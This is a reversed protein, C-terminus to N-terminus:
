RGPSPTGDCWNAPNNGSASSESSIRVLSKGLGDAQVPWPSFTGYYVEDVQVWSVQQGIADPAQPRELALREGGNSLAGIYPGFVNVAPTLSDAGYATKFAELRIIDTPDFPVVILRQGAALSIGAPFVYSVANSLRWSGDANALLISASTPNYLEIYEDNSSGELPHYMIESIVVDQIPVANAANRSPPMVFWDDGGDPYRGLSVGNEQGRFRICDVIRDQSTGPLYSLFVQEGAKDLGFGQTIPNHFGSVEDYGIHGGAALTSAPLPWKKLQNIDDSLYWYGNLEVSYNSTNFLEIYDNSDYEPHAPESYDTHAIVENLRVDVVPAPDDQGPSGHRYTSARWNGGYDLTGLPEEEVASDKVILSHGGGNAATPWGFGDNYTFRVITGNWFDSVVLTEGSNSLKGSYQGAIRDSVGTGYRFEFAAKNKVVLVYQGAQLTQLASPAAAFDFTIGDSITVSNLSITKSGINKLEIFEYEQSDYAGSADAAPNYMLETIRLSDLVGGALPQGAAFEVPSSWHSWRGTNDKMRCRVRYTRGPRVVSGPITITSSFSTLEPSEWVADIEYKGKTVRYAYSDEYFPEPSTQAALQATVSVDISFDSSSTSSQIAQVAITNTGNVLYTYPATLIVTEYSTAEHNYAIAQNYAIFGDPCYLRGVETGNIWIICGDDVYVHLTLNQIRSVDSIDFTNRLYVTYYSKYMDSLETNDDNDQMGISTQGTLWENDNFGNQRWNEVPLSPEATGKFYKWVSQQAILTIPTPEATGGTITPLPQKVFPRVEAIRWKMAAFTDAGQPDSFPSTQFRLDNSPYGNSGIYSVTPKYPISADQAEATLAKVGYTYGNNYGTPSLVTKYYTLMGAWDQTGGYASTLFENNAYWQGKKSIRPHYDWMAREAEIFSKTLDSDSIVAAIEDVVQGAQEPNFLLDLLERCRNQYEINAEAYSLVYRWHEWDTYHTGWEFTLDLDWPLMMWKGSAPNSYYICNAEPRRDSDNIAIGTAKSSYYTQLDTNAQWWSLPQYPNTKNYGTSSSVFAAIDSNDKIQTAGQNKKEYGSDMRYLNGDPLGHEDLFAGDPNEIALYLGWFDGSYQTSGNEDAADIIRFQFYQTHSAPVGAMNYLRYALTENLFLGGAGQDWPGPHPYQWWPCGGMGVNMKDWKKAYPRGYDDRAQFYHGRNFDFKWKNKGWMFTSAQGRVRYHINDYVKGDYVLTGGFHYQTDDWSSNYQCTLVDTERAILHYVPLSRMVVPNFHQVENLPASGSPNIAGSWAPVGDYVFYAFNPQPDDAYPVRVSLGATDAATIRYRILRRHVQVSAPIQVTYVSDGAVADGNQGNDYMAAATWNAPNEYDPNPVTPTATNLNPLTIPIYSGPDVLQYRLVVSAVGDPDTVKATITVVQGSKPQQPFHAVQRIQPPSNEAFVATNMDGPTPYASRWSGGLNNDLKPHILQISHGTGGPAVDPVADGVTPWPFGLGYDVQDVTNGQADCLKINEGENNLSGSFPGMVLNSPTGYKQSITVPRYAQSADEAIVLYSEAPFITGQPFTYDVGDCFRWGSMDVDFPGTNYLEIFEVRETKLDPNYHIENIVIASEGRRQWNSSIVAMDSLNVGDQGVLDACAAAFGDCGFPNLWQQAMLLIDALSVVCDGSLDGEPCADMRQRTSFQWVDGEVALQGNVYEDVRWYYTTLEYPTPYHPYIPTLVEGLYLLPFQTGAYVKYSTAWSDGSWMLNKDTMPLNVAGNAPNPDSTKGGVTFTWDDGMFVTDGAVTDIRWYYTTMYELTGPHFPPHVDTWKPNSAIDPNPGFYLTYSADEELPPEQWSLVPAPQIRVAGNAPVPTNCLVAARIQVNDIYMQSNITGMSKFELWLADTASFGTGTSLFVHSELTAVDQGGFDPSITVSDIMTAGIATLSVGDAASTANGGAWLAIRIPFPAKGARKGVLFIVECGMNESWTGVQQYILGTNTGTPNGIFGAWINGYPTWPLGNGEPGTTYEVWGSIDHWENFTYTVAGPALPNDEFSPNKLPPDFLDGWATTFCFLLAALGIYFPRKATSNMQKERDLFWRISQAL